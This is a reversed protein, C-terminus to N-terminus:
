IRKSNRFFIKETENWLQIHKINLNSFLDQRLNKNLKCELIFHQEDEVKDKCVDCIRKKKRYNNMSVPINMIFKLIDVLKLKSDIHVADSSQWLM